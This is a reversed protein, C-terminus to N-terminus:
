TVPLVEVLGSLALRGQELGERIGRIDDPSARTEQRDEIWGLTDLLVWKDCGAAVLAKFALRFSKDDQAVSNWYSLEEGPSFWGEIASVDKSWPKEM